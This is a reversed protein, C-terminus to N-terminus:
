GGMKDGAGLAGGLITSTRGTTGTLRQSARKKASAIAGEDVMPTPPPPVPPKPKSFLGSM